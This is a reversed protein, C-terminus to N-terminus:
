AAEEDSGSAGFEDEFANLITLDSLMQEESAYPNGVVSKRASQVAEDVMTHFNVPEGHHDPEVSEVFDLALHVAQITNDMRVSNRRERRKSLENADLRAAAAIADSRAAMKRQDRVIVGQFTEMLSPTRVGDIDMLAELAALCHALEARHDIRQDDLGTSKLFKSNAKRAELGALAENIAEVGDEGKDTRTARLEENVLAMAHKVIRGNLKGGLSFSILAAVDTNNTISDITYSM